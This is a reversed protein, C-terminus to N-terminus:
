ERLRRAMEVDNRIVALHVVLANLRMEHEWRGNRQSKLVLENELVIDHISAIDTQISATTPGLVDLRAENVASLAEM